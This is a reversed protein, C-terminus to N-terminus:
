PTEPNTLTKGQDQNRRKPNRLGRKLAFRKMELNSARSIKSVSATQIRVLVLTRTIRRGRCPKLFRHVQHRKKCKSCTPMFLALARPNYLATPTPATHDLDFNRVEGRGGVGWEAARLRLTIARLRLNPLVQVRQRESPLGKFWLVEFWSAEVSVSPGLGVAGFGFLGAM